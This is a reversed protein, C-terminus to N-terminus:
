SICDIRIFGNEDVLGVEKLDQLAERLIEYTEVDEEEIDDDYTDGVKLNAIADLVAEVNIVLYPNLMEILANPEIHSFDIYCFEEADLMLEELVDLLKEMPITLTQSEYQVIDVPVLLM